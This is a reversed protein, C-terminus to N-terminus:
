HQASCVPCSPDKALGLERIQMNIGDILLLRGSLSVGMGTICKIAELAQMSGIMGVIPALVGSDSCNLASDDIDQYLCRYCPSDERRFDFVTLQGETRIAAGSVLPKAMKFCAQNLAFRTTINDTADVVLDVDAVAQLLGQGELRQDLCHTHIDPNLAHIRKAASAVKSVGISGSDHIVQRQLNSLEVVDDDALHLSGVGAAALYLAVPSGLGGMGVILVKSALLMEQGAVDVEPLLIHRSYRLLQQDDM